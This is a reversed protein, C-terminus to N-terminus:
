ALAPEDAIDVVVLAVRLAHIWVVDTIDRILTWPPSALHGRDAKQLIDVPWSTIV